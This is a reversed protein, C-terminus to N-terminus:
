KRSRLKVDRLELTKIQIDLEKQESPDLMERYSSYLLDVADKQTSTYGLTMLAQLKNRTHNTIKLNTNFTVEKPTAKKTKPGNLDEMKFMKEPRLEEATKNSKILKGM